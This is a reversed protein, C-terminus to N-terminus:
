VVLSQEITAGGSEQEKMTASGVLGFQQTALVLFQL